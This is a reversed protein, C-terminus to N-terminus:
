IYNYRYIYKGIGVVSFDLDAFMPAYLYSITTNSTYLSTYKGIGVVSFDLDAFM